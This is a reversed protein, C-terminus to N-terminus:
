YSIMPYTPFRPFYKHYGLAAAPIIKKKNVSSTQNQNCFLVNEFSSFNSLLFFSWTYLMGSCYDLVINRLFAIQKLIEWKSTLPAM